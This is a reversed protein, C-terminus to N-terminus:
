WSVVQVMHDAEQGLAQEIYKREESCIYPHNAPCDASLVVWGLCWVLGGVGSLYFYGPWGWSSGSLYGILINCLIQGFFAGLINSKGELRCFDCSVLM